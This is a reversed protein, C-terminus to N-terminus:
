NEGFDECFVSWMEGSLDLHLTDKTYEFESDYQADNVAVVGVADHYIPGSNCHCEVTNTFRNKEIVKHHVEKAFFQNISWGIGDVGWIWILSCDPLNSCVANSEKVTGKCLGLPLCKGTVTATCFPLWQPRCFPPFEWQDCSGMICHSVLCDRDRNLSVLWLRTIGALQLGPRFDHHLLARAASFKVRFSRPLFPIQPWFFRIRSPNTGWFITETNTSTGEFSRTWDESTWFLPDFRRCMHIVLCLPLVRGPVPPWTEYGVSLGIAVLNPSHLLRVCCPLSTGCHDSKFSVLCVRYRAGMQPFTPSLCGMGWGWQPM